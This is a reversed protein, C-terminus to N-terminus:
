MITHLVHQRGVFHLNLEDSVHYALPSCPTKAECRSQRPFNQKELTLLMLGDKRHGQIHDRGCKVWNLVPKLFIFVNHKTVTGCELSPFSFNSNDERVQSPLALGRTSAQFSLVTGVGIYM